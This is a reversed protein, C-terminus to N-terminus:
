ITITLTLIPLPLIRFNFFDYVKLIDRTEKRKMSYSRQSHSEISYYNVYDKIKIDTKKSSSRTKFKDLDRTTVATNMLSNANILPLIINNDKLPKKSSDTIIYNKSGNSNKITKTDGINIKFNPKPIITVKNKNIIENFKQTSSQNQACNIKKALAELVRCMEDFQFHAGGEYLKYEEPPKKIHAKHNNSNKYLEM